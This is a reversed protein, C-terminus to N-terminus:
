SVNFCLSLNKISRNQVLRFIFLRAAKLPPELAMMPTESEFRLTHLGLPLEEMLVM